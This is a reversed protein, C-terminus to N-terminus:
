PRSLDAPAALGAAVAARRADRAAALDDISDAKREPPCLARLEGMIETIRGACMSKSTASNYPHEIERGLALAVAAIASSSLTGPMPEIDRAIADVVNGPACDGLPQGDFLGEAVSAPMEVLVRSAFPGFVSVVRAGDDYLNAM